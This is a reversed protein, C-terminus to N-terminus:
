EEAIVFNLSLAEDQIIVLQTGGLVTTSYCQAALNAYTNYQILQVEDSRKKTEVFEM